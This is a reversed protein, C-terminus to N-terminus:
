EYISWCFFLSHPLIVPPFNVYVSSASPLINKFTDSPPLGLKRIYIRIFLGDNPKWREYKCCEDSIRKSCASIMHSSIRFDKHKLWAFSVSLDIIGSHIWVLLVHKNDTTKWLNWLINIHLNRAHNPRAICLLAASPTLSESAWPRTEERREGRWAANAYPLQHFPFPSDRHSVHRNPQKRGFCLLAVVLSHIRTRQTELNLSSHEQPLVAVHQQSNLARWSDVTEGKFFAPNKKFHSFYQQLSSPCM